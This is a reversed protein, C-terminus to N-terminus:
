LGIFSYDAQIVSEDESFESWIVNQLLRARYDPLPGKSKELHEIRELTQRLHTARPEGVQFLLQRFRTSFEDSDCQRRRNVWNCFHQKFDRATKTNDGGCKRQAFFESLEGKITAIDKHYRMAIMELWAVDSIADNYIVEIAKPMDPPTPLSATIPTINANANKIRMQSGNDCFFIRSYGGGGVVIERRIVGMDVMACIIRRVRSRSVRFISALEGISFDAYSIGCERNRTIREEIYYFLAAALINKRVYERFLVHKM